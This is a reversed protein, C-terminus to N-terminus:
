VPKLDVDGGPQVRPAEDEDSRPRASGKVAEVHEYLKGNHEFEEGESRYTLSVPQTHAVKARVLTM